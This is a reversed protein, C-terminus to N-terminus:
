AFGDKGVRPDDEGVAHDLAAPQRHRIPHDGGDALAVRAARREVHAAVQQHRAEHFEVRIMQLGVICRARLHLPVRDGGNDRMVPLDGRAADGGHEVRKAHPALVAGVIEVAFGPDEGRGDRGRAFSVQQAGVVEEVQAALDGHRAHDGLRRPEDITGVHLQQRQHIVRRSLALEAVHLLHAVIVAALAAAQRVGLEVAQERLAQPQLLGKRGVVHAGDHRQGVRM